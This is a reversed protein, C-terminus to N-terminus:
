WLRTKRADIDEQMQIKRQDIIEQVNDCWEPENYPPELTRILNVLEQARDLHMTIKADKSYTPLSAIQSQLDTLSTKKFM